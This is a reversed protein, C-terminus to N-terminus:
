PYVAPPDSGRILDVAAAIDAALPRDDAYPPLRERVIRYARDTAPARRLSPDQFDYAQAAALLEIALVTSFNEIIEIAKLASATAHPIEDEQLASSVGGDLSSPAALRRNESTLALATYQAIMLGSSVGPRQALFAPLGSVLPNVLRDIRRECTAAIKAAAIGLTDMALALATGIPHAQSYVVPDKLTGSVIPNDTVSALERDLVSQTSELCERVAGHVQPVARLSMADQTHHVARKLIESGELLKVMRAGTSAIGESVRFKLAESAFSVPQLGINEFTMAAIVDAWDLLHHMRRLAVCAPGTSCPTGNVLSLGEKAELELAAVGLRRLAQAGTMVGEGAAVSGGGMLVLSVHAMHTLYGISGSRPVVPILDENLLAVLTEVVVPRVGSGGHAFNNVASAMIARTEPVPLARGVGCAHSMIINRSLLRQRPEDILVNALAGVGTNVGYCVMRREAIVGVLARAHAIRALAAASLSVRAGAAIDAVGQWTLPAGIVQDTMVLDM